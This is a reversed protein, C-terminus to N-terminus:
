PLRPPPHCLLPAPFPLPLLPGTYFPTVTDVRGLTGVSLPTNGLRAPPPSQGGKGERLCPRRYGLGAKSSRSNTLRRTQMEQTSPQLGASWVPASSPALAKHMSHWALQRGAPGWGSDQSVHRRGSQDRRNPCSHLYLLLNKRFLWTNTSQNEREREKPEKSKQCGVVWSGFLCM